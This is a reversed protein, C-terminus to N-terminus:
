GTAWELKMKDRLHLHLGAKTTTETVPELETAGNAIEDSQRESRHGLTRPSVVSKHEGKYECRSLNKGGEPMCIPGKPGFVTGLDLDLCRTGGCPLLIFGSSM